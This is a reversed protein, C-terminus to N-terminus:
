QYSHEKDPFKGTKIEKIYEKVAKEIIESLNAYKKVYKPLFEPLLGLMDHVVLIQGDCDSGAGIGYIPVNVEKKIRSVVGAAVCEVIICFVGMKELANLIPGAGELKVGDVNSEAIFRGANKIAISNSPQYSMYPMDAIVMARQVGRKVASCASLLDSMKVKLTSEYGLMVMGLSDGVLIIEIGAKDEIIATPYDYATLLAIKEGQEKIERLIQPTIKKLDSKIKNESM